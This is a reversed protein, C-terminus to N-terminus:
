LPSRSRLNSTYSDRGAVMEGRGPVWRCKSVEDKVRKDRVQGMAM